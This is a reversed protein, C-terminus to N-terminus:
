LDDAFKTTFRNCGSRGVDLGNDEIPDYYGGVVFQTVRRTYSRKHDARTGLWAGNVLDFSDIIRTVM